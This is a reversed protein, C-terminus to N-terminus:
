VVLAVSEMLMKGMAGKDYVYEKAQLVAEVSQRWSDLSGGPVSKPKNIHLHSEVGSLIELFLAKNEAKNKNKNIKEIMKLREPVSAKIFAEASESISPLGAVLNGEGLEARMCRSLVTPLLMEVNPTLIFIHTGSSPEELTKLLINQAERTITSFYVLILKSAGSVFAAKSAFDVIARADSVTFADVKKVFADPNRALKIDFIKEVTEELFSFDSSNGNLLYAHHLTDKQLNSINM